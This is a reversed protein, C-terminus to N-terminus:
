YMPVKLFEFKRSFLINKRIPVIFHLTAKEVVNMALLIHMNRELTDIPMCIIQISKERM